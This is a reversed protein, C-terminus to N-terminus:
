NLSGRSLPKRLAMFAPSYGEKELVRMWGVRGQVQAMTAGQGMAWHEIYPLLPVANRMNHGSAWFTNLMLGRPYARLETLVAFFFEQADNLLWLQMRDLLVLEPVDLRQVLCCTQHDMPELLGYATPWVEALTAATVKLLDVRRGDASFVGPQQEIAM